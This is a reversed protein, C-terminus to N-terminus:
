KQLLKDFGVKTAERFIRVNLLLLFAGSRQERRLDLSQLCPLEEVEARYTNEEQRRRETQRKRGRRRRRQSVRKIKMYGM